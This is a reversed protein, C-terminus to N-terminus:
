VCTIDGVRESSSLVINKSITRFKSWSTRHNRRHLLIAVDLAILMVKECNAIQEETLYEKLLPGEGSYYKFCREKWPSGFFECFVFDVVHTYSEMSKRRAVHQIAHGYERQQLRVEVEPFITSLFSDIELRQSLYM